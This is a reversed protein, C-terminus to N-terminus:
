KKLCQLLFDKISILREIFTENSLDIKKIEKLHEILDEKKHNFFHVPLDACYAILSDINEKFDEKKLRKSSRDALLSDIKKIMNLLEEKHNFFSHSM